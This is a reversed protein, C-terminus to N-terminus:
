TEYINSGRISLCGHLDAAVRCVSHFHLEDVDGFEGEHVWIELGAGRKGTGDLGEPLFNQLSIADEEGSGLVVVGDWTSCRRKM